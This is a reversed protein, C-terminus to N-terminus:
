DSRGQSKDFVQREFMSRPFYPLSNNAPFCSLYLVICPMLATFYLFHQLDFHEFWSRRKKPPLLAASALHSLLTDTALSPASATAATASGQLASLASHSGKGVLWRGSSRWM